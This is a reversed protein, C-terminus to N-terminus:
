REAFLFHPRTIQCSFEIVLLTDKQVAVAAASSDEITHVACIVTLETASSGSKGPMHPGGEPM